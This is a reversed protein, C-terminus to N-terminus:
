GNNGVERPLQTSVEKPFYRLMGQVGSRRRSGESRAGKAFATGTGAEGWGEM